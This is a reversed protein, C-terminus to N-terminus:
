GGCGTDLLDIDYGLATSSHYANMQDLKLIANAGRYPPPPSQGINAPTSKM